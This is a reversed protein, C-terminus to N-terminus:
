SIERRRRQERRSPMEDIKFTFDGRDTFVAVRTIPKGYCLSRVHDPAAPADTIALFSHGYGPLQRPVGKHLGGGKAHPAHFSPRFEDDIVVDNITLPRKSLSTIQVGGIIGYNLYELAIIEGPQEPTLVIVTRATATPLYYSKAM